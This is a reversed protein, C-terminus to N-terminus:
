APRPDPVIRATLWLAFASVALGGLLDVLYHDGSFPVSLLMVANLAAAPWFLRPMGRYVATFLVAMATHFSPFCIIGVYSLGTRQGSRLAEHAEWAPTKFGFAHAPEVAPLLTSVVITIALAVMTAVMLQANRRACGFLAVAILAVYPQFAYSLYAHRTLWELWAHSRIFDAWAIWSFGLARDAALLLETQLPMKATAGIFTLQTGATPLLSWLTVYLLIQFLQNEHPRWLHYAFAIAGTTLPMLLMLHLPPSFSMGLLASLGFALMAFILVGGVALNDHRPLPVLSLRQRQQITPAVSAM